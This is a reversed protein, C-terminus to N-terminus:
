AARDVRPYEGAQDALWAAVKAWNRTDGPAIQGLLRGGSAGTIVAINGAVGDCTLAALVAASAANRALVPVGEEDARSVVEGAFQQSVLQWLFGNRVGGGTVLVQRLTPLTPLLARAATGLTRAVLHTATCLLDPLGIGLQRAEEFAAM